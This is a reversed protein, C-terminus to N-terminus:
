ESTVSAFNAHNNTLADAIEAQVYNKPIVCVPAYSHQLLAQSTSGLLWGSVGSLGRSGVVILDSKKSASVLAELASKSVVRLDVDLHPYNEQIPLVRTQLEALSNKLIKDSPTHSLFDSSTNYISVAALALLQANWKNAIAAGISLARLSWESADSGVVIKQLKYQHNLINGDKDAYPVVIIPCYAAAPLSSSMTKLLREALGSKGRNGIVIMRYQCSLDIFIQSPDGTQTTSSSDVNYTNAIDEARHLIETIEDDTIKIKNLRVYLISVSLSTHSAYNAAWRVAEYGAETGDVGVLISKKKEM